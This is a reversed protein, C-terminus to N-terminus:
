LKNHQANGGWMYWGDADDSGTNICVLEGDATGFYMRGGALCPQFCIQRGTAYMFGPQGSVQHLSVLHGAMSALYIYERGLSPPLFIQDEPDVDSGRVESQWDVSQDEDKLCCVHRGQSNFIRGNRYATRSGQYAWAGSVSGVGLHDSASGLEASAPAFNFGVGSDLDAAMQWRISSGGGKAASRYPSARMYVRDREHYAGSRRHARRIREYTKGRITQKETNIVRGNVILPASTGQNEKKWVLSGDSVEFCFTVGDLCTVFVQDADVVPSTIVDGTIDVEWLHEGTNLDACLLRHGHGTAPGATAPVTPGRRGRQVGRPSGGPYAIFLKDGSIAPQSMLPDGLWEQWIIRGTRAECIIVTCSETNFAVFGREVVAATPGDDATKIRWVLQGTMADFAYFGFTGYGGGVFLFGNEYAPTAIPRYNSIQVSWNGNGRPGDFSQPKLPEKSRPIHVQLAQDLDITCTSESNNPNDSMADM